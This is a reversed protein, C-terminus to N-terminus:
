EATLVTNYWTIHTEGNLKIKNIYVTHITMMAYSLPVELFFGVILLGISECATTWGQNKRCRDMKGHFTGDRTRGNQVMGGRGPSCDDVPRRQPRFSQPREPFVGDVRKGPGGCLGRWGGDRRVDRVEATEYGGHTGCIGCVLDAKQTFDGRHEWKGDQCAHGSLFDPPQRSQAKALQHLSDLVQPPSPAAHRLPARARAGRSAATCCQRSYRPEYCGSKSSSPLAQDTM